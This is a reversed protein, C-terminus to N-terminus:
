SATFSAVDLGPSSIFHGSIDRAVPMLFLLLFPDPFAISIPCINMLEDTMQLM